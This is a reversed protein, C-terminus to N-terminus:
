TERVDPYYFIRLQSLIDPDLKPGVKEVGKIFPIKPDRGSYYGGGVEEVLPGGVTTTPSNSKTCSKHELGVFVSLAHAAIFRLGSPLGLGIWGLNVNATKPEAVLEEFKGRSM